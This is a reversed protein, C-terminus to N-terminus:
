AAKRTTKAVQQRAATYELCLLRISSQQLETPDVAEAKGDVLDALFLSREISLRPQGDFGNFSLTRSQPYFVGASLWQTQDSARDFVRFWSSVPLAARWAADDGMCATGKDGAPSKPAAPTTGPARETLTDLDLLKRASEQHGLGDALVTRAKTILPAPVAIERLGKELEELIAQVVASDKMEPLWRVEGFLRQLIQAARRMEDSESGFKLHMAAIMPLWIQNLFASVGVPVDRGSGVSRIQQYAAARGEELRASTSAGASRQSLLFRRLETGSLPDVPGAPPASSALSNLRDAVEALRGEAQGAATGVLSSLLARAPHQPDSFFGPDSLAIRLVPVLLQQTVAQGQSADWGRTQDLLLQSVLSLRQLGGPGQLVHGAAGGGM